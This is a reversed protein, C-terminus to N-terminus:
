YAQLKKELGFRECFFHIMSWWARESSLPQFVLGHEKDHAEPNTFAHSTHGYINMQWDVKADNLERQMNTIDELSVLPDEYGHLILLSGKISKAIPVTKAERNGIKNGLVGHFSVVGKVDAGSRLLEIVTLGGFCFGIAGVRSHDVGPHQRVVDFAACIRKQLLARDQFLAMMLRQAEEPSSATRGEGYVDAAFGMYGLEALAEAKHRAFQDQGMWAHAVIIAPRRQVTPDEGTPFAWYGHYAKGDIQYTIKEHKM